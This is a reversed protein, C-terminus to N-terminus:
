EQRVNTTPEPAPPDDSAHDVVYRWQGDVFRAVDTFRGREVTEAGGEKAVMTITFRGWTTLTDGQAVRGIEEIVADKITYAAFYGAYGARIAEHGTATPGGPFYMVADPLYCAVVAEADGAVFAPRWCDAATGAPTTLDGAHAAASFAALSALGAALLRIPLHM